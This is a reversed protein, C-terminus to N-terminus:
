QDVIASAAKVLADVSPACAGFSNENARLCDIVAKYENPHKEQVSM